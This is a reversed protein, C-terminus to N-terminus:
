PVSEANSSRPAPRVIRGKGKKPADIEPGSAERRASRSIVLILDDAQRELEPCYGKMCWRNLGDILPASAFRKVFKTQYSEASLLLEIEFGGRRLHAALRDLWLDRHLVTPFPGQDTKSASLPTGSVVRYFLRHVIFPTRPQPYALVIKGHPGVWRMFKDIVTCPSHLHEIVFWSIVLDFRGEWSENEYVHLDACVKEHVGNNRDLQHPSIDVAAVHCRSLSLHSLSGCGAELVQLNRLAGLHRSLLGVADDLEDFHVYRGTVAPIMKMNNEM